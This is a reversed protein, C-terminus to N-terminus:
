AIIFLPRRKMKCGYTSMQLDHAKQNLMAGVDMGSVRIIVSRQM